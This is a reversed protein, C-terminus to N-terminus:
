ARNPMPKIRCCGEDEMRDFMMAGEQATQNCLVVDPNENAVALLVDQVARRDAETLKPLERIIEQASM